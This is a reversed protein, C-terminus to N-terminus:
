NYITTSNNSNDGYSYDNLLDNTAYGALTEISIIKNTASQDSFQISSINSNVSRPFSLNMGTTNDVDGINLNNRM